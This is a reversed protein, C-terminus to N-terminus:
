KFRLAKVPSIRGAIFSPILTALFSLAISMGIVIAYHWFEIKVPLTDLYYISGELKIVHYIEQIKCLAFGISCGLITGTTGITVGQIIFLSIVGNTTMGLSKLIGITRTKEVVTILLITIINLVAVASILGLVIPIPAKQYEIWTFIARHLEFVTFSFYPYGMFDDIKASVESAKSVDRLIVELSVASNEPMQFFSRANAVPIYVYIDDYQAMGTEYIGTIRFKSIKPLEALTTETQKIAFVAVSDGIKVNLKRMLRKGIVIDSATGSLEFTGETINNKMNTIDIDSAMGRVMIGEVFHKSRILGESEVNPSISLIEPFKNKLTLAIEGSNDIIRNKYSKIIIHSTFKVANERLTTEFGDLVSLSVILAISGLMVSLLAIIRAFNLFRHNKKSQSVRKSIYRILKFKM